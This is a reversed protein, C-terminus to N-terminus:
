YTSKQGESIGVLQSQRIPKIFIIKGMFFEVRFIVQDNKLKM